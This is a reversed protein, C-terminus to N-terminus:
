LMRLSGGSSDVILKHQVGCALAYNNKQHGVPFNFCIPYNYKGTKELVIDQLTKGFADDPDDEQTVKFGGVLLGALSSLKGTRKLSWFMRDISYLYEGTDEVFLIKGATRIDSRTGALTEITKLNGGVLVGTATGMKNAADPLATYQLKEGMLIKKISLITDQQVPEAKGWEDPFSNCMKSHLSAIGYNRNIHAHLVTIDSFGILWKPHAAFGSFDLQDIIRIFGYGGRACMIAKVSRDDLLQQFDNRREEDTGGFSYDRKGITAGNKITFGWSKMLSIAPLLEEPQIYGAPSTIAITDGPKLFPPLKASTGGDAGAVTDNAFLPPTAGIALVSSLFHKRNMILSIGYQTKTNPVIATNKCVICYDM